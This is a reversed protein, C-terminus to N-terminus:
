ENITKEKNWASTTEGTVVTAETAGGGRTSETREEGAEAEEKEKNPTAALRGKLHEAQMTTVM